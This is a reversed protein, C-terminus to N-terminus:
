CSNNAAAQGSAFGGPSEGIATMLHTEVFHPRHVLRRGMLGAAQRLQDAAVGELGGFEAVGVTQEFCLKTLQSTQQEGASVLSSHRTASSQHHISVDKGASGMLLQFGM